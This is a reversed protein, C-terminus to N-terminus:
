HRRKKHWTLLWALTEKAGARRILLVLVMVALVTFVTGMVIASTPDPEGPGGLAGPNRM